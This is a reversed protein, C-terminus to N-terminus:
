PQDAGYTLNIRIADRVVDAQRSVRDIRAEALALQAALADALTAAGAAYSSTELEARREALPTLADDARHLRDHHMSHDALDAKLEAELERRMAAKQDRVSAVTEEWGAIVPDQRTKAFLPLSFTVGASVMEGWRPDRHQYAVDWGWDPRKDAKAQDLDARAQRIQADLALLSPHRDLAATLAAANVELDPPEGATSAQDDGTWRALEARAKAVDATLDAKRDGLAAMLQDPEVTQGPRAAGSAVQAPASAIMRNIVGEAQGLAQLRREAFYLDTWALGTAVKVDRTEMAEGAEATAIGAAARARSAQLKAGNPMDQSVGISAMTMSDPGFRGAPPGSVPFNDLGLRVKPDPLRGAAASSLQAARVAKAKAALSPANASAIQLAAAYTM